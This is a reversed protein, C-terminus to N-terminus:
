EGDPEEDLLKLKDAMAKDKMLEAVITKNNESPISAALGAIMRDKMDQAIATDGKIEEIQKKIDATDDNTVVSYAFGVSTITTNWETVDKFGFSKIDADFAKGDNGQDVFDQLSEYDELNADKYKDKVLALADVARKASDATLEVVQIVPIEGLNLEDGSDAPADETAPADPTEGAAPPAPPPTAPAPAQQDTSQAVDNESALRSQDKQALASTAAFWTLLGAAIARRLM